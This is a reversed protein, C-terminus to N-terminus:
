EISPLGSFNVLFNDVFINVIERRIKMGNSLVLDRSGITHVVNYAIDYTLKDQKIADDIGSFTNIGLIARDLLYEFNDDQPVYSKIYSELEKNDYITAVRSVFITDYLPINKVYIKDSGFEHILKDINDASIRKLNYLKIPFENSHTITYIKTHTGEKYILNVHIANTRVMSAQHKILKPVIDVTVDVGTTCFVKEINQKCDLKYISSYNSLATTYDNLALMPLEESSVDKIERRLSRLVCLNDYVTRANESSYINNNNKNHELYGAIYNHKNNLDNLKNFLVEKKTDIDQLKNLKRLVGKNEAMVSNLYNTFFTGKTISIVPIVLANKYNGFISYKIKELLLVYRSKILIFYEKTEKLNRIMSKSFLVNIEMNLEYPINNISVYYEKLIVHLINHIGTDASSSGSRMISNGIIYYDELADVLKYVIFSHSLHLISHFLGNYISDLVGYLTKRSFFDMEEEIVKYKINVRQLVQNIKFMKKWSNIKNRDLCLLFEIICEDDAVKKTQEIQKNILTKYKYIFQVSECANLLVESEMSVSDEFTASDDDIIYVYIFAYKNTINSKDMVLRSVLETHMPLGIEYDAISYAIDKEKQQKLMNYIGYKRDVVVSFGRYTSHRYVDYYEHNIWKDVSFELLFNNDYYEEILVENKTKQKYIINSTGDKNEYSILGRRVLFLEILLLIGKFM